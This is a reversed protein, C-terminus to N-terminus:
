KWEASRQCGHARNVFISIPIRFAGRDRIKTLISFVNEDRGDLDFIPSLWSIEEIKKLKGQRKKAKLTPFLWPSDGIESWFIFILSIKEDLGCITGDRNRRSKIGRSIDRGHNIVLTLQKSSKFYKDHPYVNVRIGTWKSVINTLAKNYGLLPVM